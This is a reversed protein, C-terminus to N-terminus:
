LTMGRAGLIEREHDAEHDLRCKEASTAVRHPSASRAPEGILEFIESMKLPGNGYLTM